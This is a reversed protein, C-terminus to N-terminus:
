SHKTNGTGPAPRVAQLLADPWEPDYVFWWLKFDVPKDVANHAGIPPYGGVLDTMGRLLLGLLIMATLARPRATPFNGSITAASFPYGLNIFITFTHAMPSETAM